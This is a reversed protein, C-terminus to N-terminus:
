LFQYITDRVDVVLWCSVVLRHCFLSGRTLLNSNDNTAARYAVLSDQLTWGIRAQTAPVDARLPSRAESIM